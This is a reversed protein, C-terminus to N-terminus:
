PHAALSNARGVTLPLGFTAFLTRDEFVEIRRIGAPTVTLVDIAYARYLDDGEPRYVGFGHNGRIKVPVKRSEGFLPCHAVLELLAERGSVQMAARNFTADETLAFSLAAVDGTEFATAYEDLAADDAVSKDRPVSTARLSATRTSPPRPTDGDAPRNQELRNRSRHVLTHVATGSTGILDAVETAPVDLVDRLILARRQRPSLEQWAHNLAERRHERAAVIEAPDTLPPAELDVIDAQSPWLEPQGDAPEAESLGSPVPLRRQRELATRCTNTAIRYLWTRLTSRGEFAGYSRWARLYTEQVQDEADHSSGLLRRCHALLERHYPEVLRTFEAADIQPHDPEPKTM